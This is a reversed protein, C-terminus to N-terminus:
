QSCSKLREFHLSLTRLKQAAYIKEEDFEDELSQEHGQIEENEDVSDRVTKVIIKSNNPHGNCEAIM